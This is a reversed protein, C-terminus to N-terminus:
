FALPSVKKNLGWSAWFYQSTSNLWVTTTCDSLQTWSKSVGHVARALSGQGESNGLTEEFEHGSLWYHWGIMEDETVGKEVQRWDKGADPDKGILWNKVDPPWLIPTEAETDSRGIFIWPQNGKPHVSQIEKSDLLSQLTKELVLIQLCWNESAWSKKNYLEWMQVHSSSFFMAKIKCVKTPLTIDRSKLVRGLNTMAKRRHLLHRKIEHSCDGYTTIKSGLFIFNRVAEVSEGVVPWSTIPGSEM